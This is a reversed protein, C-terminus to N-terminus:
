ESPEAADSTAKVVAEELSKVGDGTAASVCAFPLDEYFEQLYLAFTQTLTNAYSWSQGGVGGGQADSPDNLSDEVASEDKMWSILSDASAVDTKNFAVILSVQQKLMVASAYLMTSVFTRPALCRSTDAVFVAVTPFSAKFTETILQGSASWTFVEIQGPTDVVIWDLNEKKELLEIVQHIKTAFLNLSSLISGNPGLQYQQM